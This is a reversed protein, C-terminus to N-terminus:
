TRPLRRNAMGQQPIVAIPSKRVHGHLGSYVGNGGDGTLGGSPTVVVVVAVDIKKYSSFVPDAVQKVVIAVACKGVDRMVCSDVSGRKGLARDPAIVIIVPIQFQVDGIFPLFVEEVVVVPVPSEALDGALHQNLSGDPAKRYPKPIIVVIAPEVKVHRT